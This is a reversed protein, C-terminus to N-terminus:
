EDYESAISEAEDKRVNRDTVLFGNVYVQYWGGGIHHKAVGESPVGDPLKSEQRVDRPKSARLEDVHSVRKPTITAREPEDDSEVIALVGVELWRATTKNQEFSAIQAANVESSEGPNLILAPRGPIGLRRRGNNIIRKM